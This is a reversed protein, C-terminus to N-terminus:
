SCSLHRRSQLHHLPLSHGHTKDTSLLRQTQAEVARSQPATCAGTLPLERPVLVVNGWSIWNLQSTPKSNLPELTRLHREFPLQLPSTVEHVPLFVATSNYFTTNALFLLTIKTVNQLHKRATDMILPVILQTRM